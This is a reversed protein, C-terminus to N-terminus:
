IYRCEYMMRDQYPLLQWLLPKVNNNWNEAMGLTDDVLAELDLLDAPQKYNRTILNKIGAVKFARNEAM